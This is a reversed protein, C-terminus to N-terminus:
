KGGPLVNKIISILGIGIDSFIDLVGLFAWAIICFMVLCMALLLAAEGVVPTLSIARLLSDNDEMPPSISIHIGYCFAFIVRSIAFWIIYITVM